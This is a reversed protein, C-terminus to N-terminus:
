ADMRQKIIKDYSSCCGEECCGTQIEFDYCADWLKKLKSELFLVREELIEIKSKPKESLNYM